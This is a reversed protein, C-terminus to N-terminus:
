RECDVNFKTDLFEKGFYSSLIDKLEQKSYARELSYCDSDDMWDINCEIANDSRRSLEFYYDKNRAETYLSYDDIIQNITKM